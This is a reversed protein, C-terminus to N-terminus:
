SGATVRAAADLWGDLTPAADHPLHLGLRSRRWLIDEATMAWERQVLYRIETEYLGPLVQQGLDRMNGCGELLAHVRSGYARVYREILRAPAWGYAQKQLRAYDDFALLRRGPHASDALDGGPLFAGATWANGVRGLLPALRNVADQALLRYTSLGGGLVSLLPADGADLRIQYHLPSAPRMADADPLMFADSWALVLDAPTASATFYRNVLRCLTAIEDDTPAMSSLDGECPQSAAGVLTYDREFPLAFVTQGDPHRFRYGYGHSFKKRLLIQSRRVLHQPQAHGTAERLFRVARAGTANVLARASVPLGAGGEIRLTAQWRGALRQASDCTTRTLVTAGAEAAGVANLVTLRAEDVRADTFLAGERFDLQLPSGSVHQLLNAHRSAPLLPHPALRDCLMLGARLAWAPRQGKDRPMALRLPSFLHPASRMLTNREALARRVVSLDHGELYRLMGHVLGDSLPSVQAALDDRECLVVSLGRGAADRAIAAGHMGGGVVLVDCHITANM